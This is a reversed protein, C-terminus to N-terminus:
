STRPYSVVQMVAFLQEYFKGTNAKSGSLSVSKKITRFNTFGPLGRKENDLVYVVKM